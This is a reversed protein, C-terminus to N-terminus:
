HTSMKPLIALFHMVIVFGVNKPSFVPNVHPCLAINQTPRIGGTPAVQM